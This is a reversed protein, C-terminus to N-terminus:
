LNSPLEVTHFWYDLFSKIKATTETGTSPKTIFSSAGARYCEQVISHKSVGSLVVVPLYAFPSSGRLKKLIDIANQPMARYTILLLDPLQSSSLKNFLDNSSSVFEITVNAKLEDLVSQTIYRDDEDHELM